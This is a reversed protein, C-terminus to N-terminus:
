LGWGKRITAEYRTGEIPKLRYKNYQVFHATKNGKQTSQRMRKQLVHAKNNRELNNLKEREMRLMLAMSSVGLLLIFNIDNDAPLYPPPSPFASCWGKLITADHRTGEIPELRYKNYQVFHATKNGKQASQRTKNQLM